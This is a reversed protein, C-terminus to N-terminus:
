KVISDFVDGVLCKSQCKVNDTEIEHVLIKVVVFNNLGFNTKEFWKYISSM